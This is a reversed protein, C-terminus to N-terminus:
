APVVEASLSGVRDQLSYLLVGDKMLHLKGAVLPCLFSHLGHFCEELPVTSFEPSPQALEESVNGSGLALHGELDKLLLFVIGFIELGLVVGLDDSVSARLFSGFLQLLSQFKLSTAELGGVCVKNPRQFLLLEGSLSNFSVERLQLVVKCPVIDVFVLHYRVELDLQFLGLNLLRLILELESLSPIGEEFRLL